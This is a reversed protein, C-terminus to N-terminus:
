PATRALRPQLHTMGPRQKPQLAGLLAAGRTLHDRAPERHALGLAQHSPELLVVLRHPRRRSGTSSGFM